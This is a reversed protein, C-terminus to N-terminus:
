EFLPTNKGCECKDPEEKVEPESTMTEDSAITGTQVEKNEIEALKKRTNGDKLM